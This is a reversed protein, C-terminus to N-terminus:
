MRRRASSDTTRATAPQLKFDPVTATTGVAAVEAAARTSLGTPGAPLAM